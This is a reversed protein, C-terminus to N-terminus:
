IMLDTRSYKLGMISNILQMSNGNYNFGPIKIECYKLASSFEDFASSGRDTLIDLLKAM